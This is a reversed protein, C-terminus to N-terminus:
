AWPVEKAQTEKEGKEGKHRLRFRQTKTLGDNIPPNHIKNHEGRSVIQLNEIRNDLKDFNIHHVIETPLLKRGIHKEMLLRHVKRGNIVLYGDYSVAEGRKTPVYCYRSCYKRAYKHRNESPRVHFQKGCKVCKQFSGRRNLKGSLIAKCEKSCVVGRGLLIESPAIHIFFTKECIVCKRERLKCLKNKQKPM